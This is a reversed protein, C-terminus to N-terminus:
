KGIRDPGQTLLKLRYLGERAAIYLTRKDPGAFGVNAPQRPIQDDWSVTGADFVQIGTV